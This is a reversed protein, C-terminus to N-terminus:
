PEGRSRGARCSGTDSRAIGIGCAASRRAGAVSVFSASKNAARADPVLSQYAQSGFRTRQRGAGAAVRVPAALNGFLLRAALASADILAVENGAFGFVQGAPGGATQRGTRTTDQRLDGARAERCRSGPVLLHRGAGGVRAHRGTGAAELVPRTRDLCVCVALCSGPGRGSGAGGVDAGIRIVGSGATRRLTIARQHQPGIAFSELPVPPRNASRIRAGHRLTGAASRIVRTRQCRQVIATGLRGPM